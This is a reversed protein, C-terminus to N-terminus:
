REDRAEQERLESFLLGEIFAAMWMSGLAQALPVRNVITSLTATESVAAAYEILTDYEVGLGALALRAQGDNLFDDEQPLGTADIRAKYRRHAEVLQDRFETM